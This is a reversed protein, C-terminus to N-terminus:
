PAALGQGARAGVLLRRAKRIAQSVLQVSASFNAAGPLRRVVKSPLRSTPNSQRPL